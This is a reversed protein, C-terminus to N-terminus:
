FIYSARGIMVLFHATVTARIIPVGELGKAKAKTQYIKLLFALNLFKDPQHGYHFTRKPQRLLSGCNVLGHM